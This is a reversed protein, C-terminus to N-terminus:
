QCEGYVLLFTTFVILVCFFKFLLDASSVGYVAYGYATETSEAFRIKFSGAMKWNYFSLKVTKRDRRSFVPIM